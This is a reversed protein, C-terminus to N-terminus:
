KGLLDEGNFSLPLLQDAKAIIYISGEMGGLILRIPQKFRVESEVLAQRCMGCPSIPRDSVTNANMNHYTIAMTDIPENPFLAGTSALLSREACISVPYSANEQNTGTIIKGNNLRAVASVLFNSYPAYATKTLERAQRLLAADSENLQDISEYVDFSLEITKKSM